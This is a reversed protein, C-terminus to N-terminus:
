GSGSDGYLCIAVAGTGTSEEPLRCDALWFGGRLTLLGVWMVLSLGIIAWTMVDMGGTM